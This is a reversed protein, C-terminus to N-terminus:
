CLGEVVLFNVKALVHCKAKARRHELKILSNLQTLDVKVTLCTYMRFM